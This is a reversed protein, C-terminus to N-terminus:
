TPRNGKTFIVALGASPVFAITPMHLGAFARFFSQWAKSNELISQSVQPLRHAAQPVMCAASVVCGVVIRTMIDDVLDIREFLALQLAHAQVPTIAPANLVAVPATLNPGSRESDKRICLDRQLLRNKSAQSIAPRSTLEARSFWAGRMGAAVARRLVVVRRM